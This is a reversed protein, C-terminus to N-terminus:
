NLCKKSINIQRMMYLSNFNKLFCLKTKIRRPITKNFSERTISWFIRRRRLRKWRKLYSAMELREKKLWKSITIMYAANQIRTCSTLRIWESTMSELLDRIRSWNLSCYPNRKKGTKFEVAHLHDRRNLWRWKHCTKWIGLLNVLRWVRRVGILTMSQSSIWKKWIITIM